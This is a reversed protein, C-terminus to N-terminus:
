RFKQLYAPIKGQTKAWAVPKQKEEEILKNANKVTQEQQKVIKKNQKIYHKQDAM